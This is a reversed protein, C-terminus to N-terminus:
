QRKQGVKRQNGNKFNLYALMAGSASAFHGAFRKGGDFDDINKLFGAYEDLSYRMVKLFSNGYEGVYVGNTNEGSIVVNGNNKIVFTDNSNYPRSGDYYSIVIQPLGHNGEYSTKLSLMNGSTFSITDRRLPNGSSSKVISSAGENTVIVKIISKAMELQEANIRRNKANIAYQEVWVNVLNNGLIEKEPM